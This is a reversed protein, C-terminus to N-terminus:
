KQRLGATIIKRTSILTGQCSVQNATVTVTVGTPLIYDGKYNWTFYAISPWSGQNAVQGGTIRVNNSVYVNGCAKKNSPICKKLYFLSYIVNIKKPFSQHKIKSL